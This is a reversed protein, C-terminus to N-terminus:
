LNNKNRLTLVYEWRRVSIIGLGQINFCFLSFAHKKYFVLYHFFFLVAADRNGHHIESHMQFKSNLHSSFSCCKGARYYTLVSDPSTIGGGWWKWISFGRNSFTLFPLFRCCIKEIGLERELM